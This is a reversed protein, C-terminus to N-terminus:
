SEIGAQEVRLVETEDLQRVVAGRPRADHRVLFVRVYEFQRTGFAIFDLCQGLLNYENHVIQRAAVEAVQLDDLFDEQGSEFFQLVAQAHRGVNDILYLHVLMDKVVRFVVVHEAHFLHVPQGRAAHREAISVLFHSQVDFGSVKGGVFAHVM